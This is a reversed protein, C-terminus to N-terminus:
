SDTYKVTYQWAGGHNVSGATDSIWVLHYAWFKGYGSDDQFQYKSKPFNYRFIYDSRYNQGSYNIKPNFRWRRVLTVQEDDIRDTVSNGTIVKFVQSFSLSTLNLSPQIATKILLLQGLSSEINTYFSGRIELTMPRVSDGVRDGDTPGQGLAYLLNTSVPNNAGTTIGSNLSSDFRKTESRRDITAKIKKVLKKEVVPNNFVVSGVRRRNVPNYPNYRKSRGYSSSSRSPPM